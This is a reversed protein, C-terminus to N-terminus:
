FFILYRKDFMKGIKAIYLDEPKEFKLEMTINELKQINEDNFMCSGFFEVIKEKPLVMLNRKFDCYAPNNAKANKEDSKRESGPPIV